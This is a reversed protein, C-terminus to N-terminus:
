ATHRVAEAPPLRSARWAPGLTVLLMALYILGLVGGISALDVGFGPRPASHRYFLYGMSIGAVIGVGAGITVNVASEGLLGLIISRRQYGIARLIGIVPRRETVVRMTVIGLGVIGVLLGMRMLVDIVLILARNARYTQDLLAQVSVADVGQAFMGREVTRAVAGAQAPDRIDLLMSAGLPAARFPALAHASGFVGDLLGSPQSGVITFTVPGDGGQLTVEQGPAGLDSIILSPDRSVAAWVARDTGFRHDRASLRVPPDNAAGPPVQLLPVLTRESSSFADGGTVSGLYGRTPLSVSRTVEARVTEPLRIAASGTSQIRVDYGNGFWQYDPRDIVYFVAFLTLMGVVVAFMGTTLGTRVPRRSLYALPPRLIARLGASAGGMLGFATEAIPLNAATLTTLGFVSTLTAVVFVLIFASPDAGAASTGIIALSWAALASGMLTAHGRPSLRPRALSSATVILLIGGALRPFYPPVLAVWGIVACSVLRGTRLWPRPKRDAPPEPLDRIATVVTMRSTRRSTFFIVAMTLVTGAAFAAVLTSPKLSFSFRSYSDSGAYAAFVDGIRTAVLRGAATGIATGLVGAALSYLAGETMALGVLRPRNLGLARLVGLRSRREEALMAMLNVILAAGVAVVLASMGILMSRFILSGARANGIEGAKTEQVELPVRSGLKAVAHKVVPAARHAGTLSDRLGGPVSIRVVNILDAGTIRQATALPAFVVSGLTYGGPGDERAIGSVRLDAAAGSAPGGAGVSVRVRDGPKAGLKGALVQSLLVDGPSLDRGVTRRGTTLVYAGFPKQTGPDFGVLTVSTGRRTGADSVSGAVDIGPSVGDTVETVAPSAALRTAVDDPFFGNGATVTLDVSGWSRVALDLSTADTSDAAVLAATITASGVMLGAVVLLTQGKRRAAERMALRGLHRHRLAFIAVVGYTSAFLGALVIVVPSM